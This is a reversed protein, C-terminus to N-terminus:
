AWMTHDYAPPARESMHAMRGNAAGYHAARLAGNAQGLGASTQLPQLHTQSNVHHLQHAPHVSGASLLGVDMRSKKSESSIGASLSEDGTLFGYSFSFCKFIGSM